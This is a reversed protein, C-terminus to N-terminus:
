TMEGNELQYAKYSLFPSLLSLFAFFFPARLPALVSEKEVAPAVVSRPSVSVITSVSGGGSCLPKDVGADWADGNGGCEASHVVGLKSLRPASEVCLTAALIFSAVSAVVTERSLEMYSQFLAPSLDGAFCSMLKSADSIVPSWDDASRACCSSSETAVSESAVPAM